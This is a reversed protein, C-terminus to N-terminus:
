HLKTGNQRAQQVQHRAYEVLMVELDLRSGRIQRRIEQVGLILAEDYDCGRQVHAAMHWFLLDLLAEQLFPNSM